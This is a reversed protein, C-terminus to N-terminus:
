NIWEQLRLYRESCGEICRRNALYLTDTSVKVGFDITDLTVEKFMRLVTDNTRYDIIYRYAEWSNTRYTSDASFTVISSGKYPYWQGPGGSSMFYAKLAWISQLTAYSVPLFAGVKHEPDKTCGFIALFAVPILYLVRKM